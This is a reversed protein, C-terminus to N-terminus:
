EIQEILSYCFTEKAYGLALQRQIITNAVQYIVNRVYVKIIKSNSWFFISEIVFSNMENPSTAFGQAINKLRFYYVNKIFNHDFMSNIFWKHYGEQPTVPGFTFGFFIKFCVKIGSITIRYSIVKFIEDRVKFVIFIAKLICAKITHIWAVTKMICHESALFFFIELIRVAIEWQSKKKVNIWIYWLGFHRLWVAFMFIDMWLTCPHSIDNSIFTWEYFIYTQELFVLNFESSKKPDLLCAFIM